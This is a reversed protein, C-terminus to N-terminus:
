PVPHRLRIQEQRGPLVEWWLLDAGPRFKEDETWHKCGAEVDGLNEGEVDFVAVLCRVGYGLEDNDPGTWPAAVNDVTIKTPIRLAFDDEGLGPSLSHLLIVDDGDAGVNALSSARVEVGFVRQVAFNSRGAELVHSNEVWVQDFSGTQIPPM